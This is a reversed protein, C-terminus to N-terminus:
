ASGRAARDRCSRRLWVDVDVPDVRRSGAIKYSAIEGAAILGRVTRESLSLYAALTKATFFPRRSPPEAPPRPVTVTAGATLLCSDRLRGRALRLASDIVELEHRSVDPAAYLLHVHELADDAAHACAVLEALESHSEAVLLHEAVRALYCGKLAVVSLPASRVSRAGVSATSPKVLYPGAAGGVDSGQWGNACTGEVDQGVWRM